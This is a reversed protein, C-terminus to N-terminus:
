GEYLPETTHIGREMRHTETWGIRGLPKLPLPPLPPLLGVREM